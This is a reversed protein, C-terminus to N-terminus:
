RAQDGLGRGLDLLHVGVVRRLPLREGEVLVGVQLVEGLRHDREPVAPEDGVGPYPQRRAGGHEVGLDELGAALVVAVPLEEGVVQEGRRQPRLPRVPAVQEHLLEDDGGWRNGTVRIPTM